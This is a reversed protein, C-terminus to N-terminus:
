IRMPRRNYAQGRWQNDMREQADLECQRTRRAHHLKLEGSKIAKYVLSNEDVDKTDATKYNVEKGSLVDEIMKNFRNSIDESMLKDLNVKEEIRQNHEKIKERANEARQEHDIHQPNKICSRANVVENVVENKQEERQEEM